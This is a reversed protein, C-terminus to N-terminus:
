GRKMEAGIATKGGHGPLVVTKKPLKFIKELSKRLDEASGYGFDTRGVAGKFLTDGSFLLNQKVSYFCVGGPSHGPTKIVRLREKGLKIETEKDLDLDIKRLNPVEIKRRLFFEATEQQRELLFQDKSSCAFPIKYILKLALVGLVHDFHGHTAMIMIPKLGLKEIEESIFVGNDAADIILCHKNKEEWVLYCNTGVEGLKLKKYLISM